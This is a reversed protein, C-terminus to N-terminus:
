EAIKDSIFIRFNIFDFLDKAMSPGLLVGRTGLGNLIYLNSYIPHRGLLPKRDNVTPRVGAFHEIVEFNCDISEKIKEILENKIHEPNRFSNEETISVEHILGQIPKDETM